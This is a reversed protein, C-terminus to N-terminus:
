QNINLSWLGDDKLELKMTGEHDTRFIKKGNKAGSSYHEYFQLAKKDPHGHGNQGVSIITVEPAMNIIHDFYYNKTDAPDDFFTISGHHGAMLVSSCLDASGYDKTIGYRWTEADSDATLMASGLCVNRDYGRHEVKIVIGQANANRELRYDQASMFRLRTRGFDEWTLKKITQSGVQRRLAMYDLYEPSTTTTGPYDSDWISGITNQNHLERVGRMHDSDRHSCIFAHIPARGIIRRVYSLVDGKNEITINCDFVLHRGDATQILVMNGQGVNIFHLVTM